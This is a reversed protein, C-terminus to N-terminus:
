PTGIQWHKGLWQRKAWWLRGGGTLLHHAKLMKKRVKWMDPQAVREDRTKLSSVFQERLLTNRIREDREDVGTSRGNEDVGTLNGFNDVAGIIQGHEDPPFCPFEGEHYYNSDLSLGEASFFKIDEPFDVGIIFPMVHVDDWDIFAKVRYTHPDLLINRYAYDYSVLCPLAYLPYQELLRLADKVFDQVRAATIVFSAADCKEEDNLSLSERDIQSGSDSTCLEMQRSWLEGWLHDLSVSCGVLPQPGSLHLPRIIYSSPDSLTAAVPLGPAFGLDGVGSLPHPLPELFAAHWQALEDLIRFRASDSSKDWVQWPEVVNDIYEQLVYPVGVPNDNSANWAFIRPTPINRVYRAFTMTAVSSEIQSKSRSGKLPIRALLKRDYQSFEIRLLTNFGGKNEFSITPIEDISLAHSAAYALASTNVGTLDEAPINYGPVYFDRELIQKESPIAWDGATARWNSPIIHPYVISFNMQGWRRRSFSVVPKALRFM